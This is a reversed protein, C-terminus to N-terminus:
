CPFGGIFLWGDVFSPEYEKHEQIMDVTDFFSSDEAIQLEECM